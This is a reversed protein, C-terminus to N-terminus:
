SHLKNFNERRAAGPSNLNLRTSSGANVNHFMCSSCGAVDDHLV